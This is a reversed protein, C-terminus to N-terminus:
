QGAPFWRRAASSRRWRRQARRGVEEQRRSRVSGTSGTWIRPEGCRGCRRSEAAAHGRRGPRIPLLGSGSQPRQGGRGGRPGGGGAVHARLGRGLPRRQKPGSRGAGCQGRTAQTRQSRGPGAAGRRRVLGLAGLRGGEAASRALAWQTLRAWRGRRKNNKKGQRQAQGTCQESAARAM